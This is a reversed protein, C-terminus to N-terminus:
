PRYKDIVTFAIQIQAGSVPAFGAFSAGGGSGIPQSAGAMVDVQINYFRDISDPCPPATGDACMTGTPPLYLFLPHEIFLGDAGANATLQTFYMANSVPQVVFDIHAGPLAPANAIASIDVTNIQCTPSGVAGGTCLNVTVPSTQIATSTGMGNQADAEAQIWTVIDTFEQVTLAPGEHKGKNLVYSAQPSDLSVVKPSFALITDRIDTTNSGALYGIGPMSGDHCSTCTAQVFAPQAKQTWMDLAHKQAATLGKDGEGSIQGVCGALLVLVIVRM